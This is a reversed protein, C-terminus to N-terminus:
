PKPETPPEPSAPADPARERATGSIPLSRGGPQQKAKLDREALARDREAAKEKRLLANAEVEIKRLSSQAVRRRKRVDDLCASAFFKDYCAVRQDAYFQDVEARASTVDELAATAKEVTDISGPAYREALVPATDEAHGPLVTLATLTVSVILKWVTMRPDNM